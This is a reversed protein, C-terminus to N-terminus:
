NRLLTKQNRVKDASLSRLVESPSIQNNLALFFVYSLM